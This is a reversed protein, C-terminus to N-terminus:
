VRRRMGGSLRGARVDTAGSLGLVAIVANARTHSEDTSLGHLRGSQVLNEVVTLDGDVGVYQGAYGILEQVRRRDGNVTYGAIRAQGSTAQLLTVFIRVATTKGSGNPGLLGFIEGPEVSFTIGDLARTGSAY